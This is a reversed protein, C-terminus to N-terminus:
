ARRAERVQPLLEPLHHDRADPERARDQGEGQGRGGPAPRRELPAGADPPGTFEDVIVVQATRSWTTSTSSSSRTRACRRTSTTSCPCTRRTTSGASGPEPPAGAAARGEGHRERHAHVTKHKEDVIYDGTTELEEREEAKVNGQTVAGPTSSRSSATSRTTSTPRSRPRARLHHAADAGRRHPHQRSRRRHRLPARAARVARARVEHQRAPLRLRVRQEHRLHHRLRLRGPAGADNLDHQIVGVTMGSSATSAAWGSRTAAPWTTTSRSSTSARATSRTSTPRAADRRADQRRRDEDRRDQRQHLVMGGILQVDFHRMNLVRRGAERVVAFAEPLLDDLTAGEALASGSSPPRAACSRRRLARQVAAERANIEAVLPRLRKLERENQTGIVKALLTDVIM